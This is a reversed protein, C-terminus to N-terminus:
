GRLGALIGEMIRRLESGELPSQETGTEQHVVAVLRWAETLIMIDAKDKGEPVLVAVYGGNVRRIRATTIDWRAPYPRYITVPRAIDDAPLARLMPILLHEMSYDAVAWPTAPVSRPNTANGSVRVSDGEVKLRSQRETASDTWYVNVDTPRGAADHMALVTGVLGDNRSMAVMLTDGRRSAVHLLIEAGQTTRSMLTDGIGLPRSLQAARTASLIREVNSSFLGAPLSDHGGAQNPIGGSGRLEMSWENALLRGAVPDFIFRARMPGSVDVWLTTGASSDAWYGDRYRLEGDATIDLAGRAGLTDLVRAVRYRRSGAYIVAGTPTAGEIRISDSWTDGGRLARVLDPLRPLADYQGRPKAGPPNGNIATVRGSPAVTLTETEVPRTVNLQLQQLELRLNSGPIWRHREVSIAHTWDGLTDGNRVFYMKFINRSQMWITEASSRYAAPQQAHATAASVILIVAVPLHKM